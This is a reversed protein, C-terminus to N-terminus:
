KTKISNMVMQDLRARLTDLRKTYRMRLMQRQTKESAWQLEIHTMKARMAVIEAAVRDRDEAACRTPDFPPLERKFANEIDANTANTRKTEAERILRESYLTASIYATSAISKERPARPPPPAMAGSLTFMQPSLPPMINQQVVLEDDVHNRPIQKREGAAFRVAMNILRRDRGVKVAPAALAARVSGKMVVGLTKFFHMKTVHQAVAGITKGVFRCKHCRLPNARHRTAVLPDPEHCPRGVRKHGALGSSTDFVITCQNCIYESM